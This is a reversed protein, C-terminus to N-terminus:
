TSFCIQCRWITELQKKTKNIQKKGKKEVIFLIQKVSETQKERRQKRRLFLDHNSYVRARVNLTPIIASNKNQTANQINITTIETIMEERM